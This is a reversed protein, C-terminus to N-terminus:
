GNQAGTIKLGMAKASGAVIKMAGEIDRASLGQKIKEQAIKRLQEQSIAGASTRGPAGSGKELGLEKKILYSTPQGKITFDFTRDSYATISVRVPTKPEFSKSKDNFAKCFEMINLGKQGLAPGVPPSPKAEGAPIELKIFGVIMKGPKSM